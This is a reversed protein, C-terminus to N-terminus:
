TKCQNPINVVSLFDGLKIATIAEEFLFENGSDDESETDYFSEPSYNM